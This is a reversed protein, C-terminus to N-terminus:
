PTSTWLTNSNKKQIMIPNEIYTKGGFINDSINFLTKTEAQYLFM